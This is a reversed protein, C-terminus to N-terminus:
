REVKRWMYYLRLARIVLHEVLQLFLLSRNDRSSVCLPMGFGSKALMSKFDEKGVSGCFLGRQMTVDAAVAVSEQLVGDRIEELHDLLDESAAESMEENYPPTLMTKILDGIECFLDLQRYTCRAGRDNRVIGDLLVVTTQIRLARALTLSIEERYAKSVQKDRCLNFPDYKALPFVSQVAKWDGIAKNYKEHASDNIEGDAEDKGWEKGLSRRASLEAATVINPRVNDILRSAFTESAFRLVSDSAEGALKVQAQIKDRLVAKTSLPWFVLAGLGGIICGVIVNIIRFLSQIWKPHEDTYFPLVSIGFTLLCLMSAYSYKGIFSKKFQITAFSYLFTVLAISFGIFLAQPEYNPILLSLFGCAVGLCAGLITGMIRQFTKEVVSATDMSPFWSVMLASIYVWVGQPYAQTDPDPTTLLVFLSSITLVFSLRAGFRLATRDVREFLPGKKGPDRKEVNDAQVDNKIDKGKSVSLDGTESQERLDKELARGRISSWTRSRGREKEASVSISLGNESNQFERQLATIFPDDQWCSPTAEVTKDPSAESEAIDRTSLSDM